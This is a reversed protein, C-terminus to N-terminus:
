ADRIGNIYGECEACTKRLCEYSEDDLEYYKVCNPCEQCAESCEHRPIQERLYAKFKALDRGLKDYRPIWCDWIVGEVGHAHLALDQLGTEYMRMEIRESSSMGANRAKLENLESMAIKMKKKLDDIAATARDISDM